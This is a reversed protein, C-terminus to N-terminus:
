WTRQRIRPRTEPRQRVGWTNEGLAIPINPQGGAVIIRKTINAREEHRQRDGYATVILRIDVKPGMALCYTLAWSDDIDDGIDTDIIMIPADKNCKLRRPSSSRPSGGKRPSYGDKGSKKPSKPSNKPSKSSM